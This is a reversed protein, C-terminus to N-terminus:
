KRPMVSNKVVIKGTVIQIGSVYKKHKIKKILSKVCTDAMQNMNVEYSTIRDETTLGMPLFNDFGVVSVQEPVKCGEEELRQILRHATIDCNCVYAELINQLAELRDYMKGNKERDSIEWEPQFEIGSERLAKRYGWFRDMISSTSDPNGVFGIKRHGKEILYHTMIYMGYYGDSIVTDVNAMPVFTDLFSVPIETQNVMKEIYERDTQGMFIVGDVKGDRIVNPLVRNNEDKESLIELIGYYQNNFLSKVVKEYLQGYFSSSYSYYNEPIVVGINGTSLSEKKSASNSVYGMEDAVKKIKIRLEDSVGSKGALAKSVAVNSVGIRAAIDALTVSKAM